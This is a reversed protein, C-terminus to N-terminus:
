GSHSSHHPASKTKAHSCDRTIGCSDKRLFMHRNILQSSYFVSYLKGSGTPMVIIHNRILARRYSDLQQARPSIDKKLIDTWGFDEPRAPWNVPAETDRALQSLLSMPDERPLLVIREVSEFPPTLMLSSWKSSRHEDFRILNKYSFVIAPFSDPGLSFDKGLVIKPCNACSVDLSFDSIYGHHIDDDGDFRLLGNKKYADYMCRKVGFHVETKSTLFFCFDVLPGLITSCAVCYVITPPSFSTSQLELTVFIFFFL